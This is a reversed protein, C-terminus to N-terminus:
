RFTGELVEEIGGIILGVNDGRGLTRDLAKRNCSITGTLALLNRLIPIAFMANAIGGFFERKNLEPFFVDFLGCFVAFGYFLRGHPHWCVIYTKDADLPAHKIVKFPRVYNTLEFMLPRWVVKKFYASYYLPLAFTGMIFALYPAISGVGHRAACVLPGIITLPGFVTFCPVLFGAVLGVSM